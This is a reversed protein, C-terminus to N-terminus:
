QMRYAEALMASVAEPAEDAHRGGCSEELGRTGATLDLETRAYSGLQLYAGLLRDWPSVPLASRAGGPVTAILHRVTENLTHPWPTNVGGM